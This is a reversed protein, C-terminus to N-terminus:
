DTPFAFLPDNPDTEDDGVPLHLSAAAPSQTRKTTLRTLPLTLPTDPQATIAASLLLRSVQLERFQSFAWKAQRAFSNVYRRHTALRRLLKEDDPQALLAETTQILFAQARQHQFTALIYEELFTAEASNAPAYEAFLSERLTLFTARLPEPFSAATQATLGHTLANQASIAKGSASRPGTSHQANARNAGIQQPTSMSHIEKAKWSVM